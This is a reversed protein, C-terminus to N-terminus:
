RKILPYQADVFRAKFLSQDQRELRNRHSQTDDSFDIADPWYKTQNLDM